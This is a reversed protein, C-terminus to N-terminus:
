GTPLEIVLDSESRLPAYGGMARVQPGPVREHVWSGLGNLSSFIRRGSGPLCIVSSLSWKREYDM